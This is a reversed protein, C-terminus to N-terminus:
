RRIEYGIKDRIVNEPTNFTGMIGSCEFTVISVHSLDTYLGMRLCFEGDIVTM